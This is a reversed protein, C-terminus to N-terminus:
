AGYLIVPLIFIPYLRVNIPLIICSHWINHDLSAMCYRVTAIYKRIDLEGSGTNHIDVGLYTFSEVVEVNDGAVPM